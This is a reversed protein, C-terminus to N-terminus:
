KLSLPPGLLEMGFAHYLAADNVYEGKKRDREFWEQIRGAPTYAILLRGPTEGVFAWVHPINRPGLVCDGSQARYQDSGVEIVYEGALVYWFEDEHHHLHRPPGGPKTNAQEMAFLAGATDPTAVKFTTSSVGISRSKNFRDRGAAIKIGSSVTQAPALKGVAAAPIASLFMKLLSRRENQMQM